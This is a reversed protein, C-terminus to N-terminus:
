RPCVRLQYATSPTLTVPLGNALRAGATELLTGDPFTVEYGRDLEVTWWEPWQNLRPYDVALGVHRRHRPTDFLLAGRWAEEAHLHVRLCAGDPAAGLAVTPSWPELRTGRTLSLGYLMVTRVFNGDINEDTVSGDDHQYGYLVAVQEDVWDAAQPDDLYRLLYLASELTDAYGDMAGSEWEYFDVATVARLMTRAAQEFRAASALDGVPSSREAAAQDLYAQGLYGWNDSLDRDRVKGSPVDIIEYWLGEPTRGKQLLRHLMKDIAERHAATEPLGLRREVRHWEVLGAVIENGHDGLYFRRPGIPENEVFDWRHPPIYETTPLAGDLYAAAIRRGLELYRSDDTTWSLRALAQLTSGNVEAAPSPIPGNPTPISSADVVADVIERLRPLWPNPGLAELLPLLGDKAYEVVGLMAKEPDREVPALTDLSVDRPFGHTLRREAALAGLIEDYREPLLYRTAIGLFPFLDSGADGYSWFRGDPRLTHPFLGTPQDRRDLWRTTLRAAREFAESALVSNLRAVGDLDGAARLQAREALLARRTRLHAPIVDAAPADNVFQGLDAEREAQEVLVPNVTFPDDDGQDDSEAYVPPLPGPLTDLGTLVALALPLATLLPLLRHPLPM